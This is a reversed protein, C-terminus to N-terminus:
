KLWTSVENILLEDKDNFFHDANVQKQKYHKNEKSAQVRENVSKLVPAIDDVGYLDLMPIHTKSLYKVALDPMGVAVFYKIVQQNQSLYHVSMVSGLSHSVISDANLGQQQLYKIAAKIGNM